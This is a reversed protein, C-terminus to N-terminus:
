IQYYKEKIRIMKTRFNNRMVENQNNVKSIKNVKNNQIKTM